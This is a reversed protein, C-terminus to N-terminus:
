VMRLPGNEFRHPGPNCFHWIEQAMGRLSALRADGRAGLKGLTRSLKLMHFSQM